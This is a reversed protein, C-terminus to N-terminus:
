VWRFLLLTFGEWSHGLILEILIRFDDADDEDDDGRNGNNWKDTQSSLDGAGYIAGPRSTPSARCIAAKKRSANVYRAGSSRNSIVM